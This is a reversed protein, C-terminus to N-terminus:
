RILIACNIAECLQVNFFQRYIYLHIYIIDRLPVQMQIIIFVFFYFRLSSSTVCMERQDYDVVITPTFYLTFYYLIYHLYIFSWLFLWICIFVYFCNLQIMDDDDKWRKPRVIMWGRQFEKRKLLSLPFSATWIYPLRDLKQRRTETRNLGQKINSRKLAEGVTSDM